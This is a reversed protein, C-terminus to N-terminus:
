RHGPVDYEKYYHHGLFASIQGASKYVVAVSEAYLGFDILRLFPAAAGAVVLLSTRKILWMAKSPAPYRSVFVRAFVQGARFCRQRIWPMTGRSAPVHETAVAEDCWIQRRGSLHLRFFFDTDGGGTLGYAADFRQPPDGLASSRVLVNGTGGHLVTSGTPFITRQFVSHRTVWDPTNPAFVSAVPGFVVDADYRKHADLLASLWTPSVREDDDVFVFFEAEVLDLAHNRAASIGPTPEVAYTVDLTTSSRFQQVTERASEAPDNDVVIIRVHADRRDQQEVSQLLQALLSPRQYTAVCIDVIPPRIM